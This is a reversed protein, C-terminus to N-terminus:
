LTSFTTKKGKGEPSGCFLNANNFRNSQHHMQYLIHGVTALHQIQYTKNKIFYLM